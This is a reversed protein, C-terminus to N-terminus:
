RLGSGILSTAPVAAESVLIGKKRFSIFAMASAKADADNPQIQAHEVSIQTAVGSTVFSASGGGTLEFRTPPTSSSGANVLRDVTGGVVYLEGDEDEGFSTIQKTTDLLLQQEGHYLMFIEGTCYDGFIYAGFPLTQKNGRYV